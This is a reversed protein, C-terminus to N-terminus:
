KGPGPPKSHLLRSLDCREHITENSWCNTLNLRGASPRPPDHRRKGHLEFRLEHPVALDPRSFTHRQPQHHTVTHTPTHQHTNTPTESTVHVTLTGQGDGQPVINTTCYAVCPVLLHWQFSSKLSKLSVTGIKAAFRPFSAMPPHIYCRTGGPPTGWVNSQARWWWQSYARRCIKCTGDLGDDKKM